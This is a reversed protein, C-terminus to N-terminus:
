LLNSNKLLIPRVCLRKARGRKVNESKEKTQMNHIAVAVFHALADGSIDPYILIIVKSIAEIVQKDCIYDTDIIVSNVKTQEYIEINKTFKDDAIVETSLGCKICYLNDNGINVLAHHCCLKKRNEIKCQLSAVQRELKREEFGLRIYRRVASNNKKLDNQEQVKKRKEQELQRLQQELIELNESM